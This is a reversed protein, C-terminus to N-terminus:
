KLNEVEHCVRVHTGSVNKVARSLPRMGVTRSSVPAINISLSGLRNPSMRLKKRVLSISRFLTFM